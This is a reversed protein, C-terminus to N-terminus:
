LVDISSWFAVKHDSEHTEIKTGKTKVNMMPIFIYTAASISNRGIRFRGASVSHVGLGLSPVHNLSAGLHGSGMNM